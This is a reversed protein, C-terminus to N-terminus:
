DKKTKTIQKGIQEIAMVIVLAIAAILVIMQDKSDSKPFLQVLAIGDMVVFFSLLAFKLFDLLRM